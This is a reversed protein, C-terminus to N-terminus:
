IGNRYFTVVNILFKMQKQIGSKENVINKPNCVNNRFYIKLYNELLQDFRLITGGGSSDDCYKKKSVEEYSTHMRNVSFSDLNTLNNNDIESNPRYFQPNM